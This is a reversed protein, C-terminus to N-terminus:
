THRTHHSKELQKALTTSDDAHSKINPRNQSVSKSRIKKTKKVTSGITQKTFLIYMIINIEEVLLKVSKTIVSM